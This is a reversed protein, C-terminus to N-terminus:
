TKQRELAFFMIKEKRERFFSKVKCKCVGWPFIGSRDIPVTEFVTTGKRTGLTRIGTKGCILKITLCKCFGCGINCGSIATINPTKNDGFSVYKQPHFSSM